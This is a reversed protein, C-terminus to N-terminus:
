RRSGCVKFGFERALRSARAGNARIRDEHAKVADEDKRDLADALEYLLPAQGDLISVYGEFTSARRSPRGLSSLQTVLQETLAALARSRRAPDKVNEESDNLHDVSRRYDTCRRDGRAIVTAIAVTHRNRSRRRKRVRARERARGAERKAAHRRVKARRTAARKRGKHAKRRRTEHRRKRATTTDRAGSDETTSPPASTDPTQAAQGGADDSGGSSGCGGLAVVVAIVALGTLPKRTRDWAM